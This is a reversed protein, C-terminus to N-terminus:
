NHDADGRIFLDGNVEFAIVDGALLQRRELFSYSLGANKTKSRPNM